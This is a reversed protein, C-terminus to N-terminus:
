RARVIQRALVNDIPVGRDSVVLRIRNAGPALASRKIRLTGTRRKGTAVLTGLSNRNTTVYVAVRAQPSLGGSSWRILVTGKGRRLPRKRTGAPAVRTVHVRKIDRITQAGFRGESRPVVTWRGADPALIALSTYGNAPDHVIRSDTKERTSTYSKGSPDRLTVEPTTGPPGYGEVILLPRDRKVIIKRTARLRSVTVFQQTDGGITRVRPFESWNMGAGLTARKACHGFAGLVCVSASAGIGRDSVVGSGDALKIGFLEGSVHGAATFASTTMAMSADADLGLPGLHASATLKGSAKFSPFLALSLSLTGKVPSGNKIFEVKGNLSVSGSLDLTLTVDNLLILGANLSPVSGWRGSATASIKLPPVAIGSVSGGIKSLIFGSQGIPIDKTLTLGLSDLRGDALGGSLELGFAPTQLSGSATWMNGQEAYTLKLGGFSWGGPLTIDGFSATGGLIRIASGSAAHIGVALGEVSVRNDAFPLKIKSNVIVGGGDRADIRLTLKGGTLEGLSLPIGAVKLADLQPRAVGVEMAATQDRGSIPDRGGKADITIDGAAIPIAAGGRMVAVAAGRATLKTTDTNLQVPGNGISVSSNVLVNGTATYTPGSGEFNDACLEIVGIRRRTRNCGPASGNINPSANPDPGVDTVPHYPGDESGRCWDNDPAPIIADQPSTGIYYAEGERALRRRVTHQTGDPDTFTVTAVTEPVLDDDRNSAFYCIGYSYGYNENGEFEEFHEPGFGFRIDTSLESGYIGDRDSYWAHAGYEDWVHLDIDTADTDWTLTAREAGFAQTAGLCFFAALLVCAAM